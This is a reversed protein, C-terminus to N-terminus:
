RQKGENLAAHLAISLIDNVEEEPISYGDLKIMLDMFIARNVTSNWGLRWTACNRIDEIRESM